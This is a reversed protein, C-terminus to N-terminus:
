PTGGPDCTHRQAPLLRLAAQAAEEAPRGEAVARSLARQTVFCLAAVRGAMTVVRPRSAVPRSAGSKARRCLVAKREVSM